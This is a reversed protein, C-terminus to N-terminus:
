VSIKSLVNNILRQKSDICLHAYRKTVNVSKHGLVNAVELLSAGSQALYSATTHRLSHFTFDKIESAELAVKWSKDFCFPKNPMIESNFILINGDQKLSRLERISEQTLPLV